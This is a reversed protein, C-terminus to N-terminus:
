IWFFIFSKPMPFDGPPNKLIFISFQCPPNRSKLFFLVFGYTICKRDPSNTKKVTNVVLICSILEKVNGFVPEHLTTHRRHVPWYIEAFPVGPPTQDSITKM